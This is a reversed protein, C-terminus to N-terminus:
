VLRSPLHAYPLGRPEKKMDTQMIWAIMQGEFRLVNGINGYRQPAMTSHPALYMKGEIPVKQHCAVNNVLM